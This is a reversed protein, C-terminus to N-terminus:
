NGWRYMLILLLVTHGVGGESGQTPRPRHCTRPTPAPQTGRARREGCALGLLPRSPRWHSLGLMQFSAGWGPCPRAAAGLGGCEVAYGLAQGARGSGASRRARPLPLVPGPACPAAQAPTPLPPEQCLPRPAPFAVACAERLRGSRGGSTRPAPPVGWLGKQLQSLQPGAARREEVPEQGCRFLPASPRGPAPLPLARPSLPRPLAPHAGTDTCPTPSGSSSQQGTARARPRRLGLAWPLSLSLLGVSTGTYGLFWM